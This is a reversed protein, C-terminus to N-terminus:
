DKNFEFDPIENLSSYLSCLKLLLMWPLGFMLRTSWTTELAYQDITNPM